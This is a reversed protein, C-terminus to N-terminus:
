FIKEGSAKWRKFLHMASFIYIIGVLVFLYYNSSISMGINTGILGTIGLNFGSVINVFFAVTDMQAKGGFLMKNNQNWRYLLYGSVIGSIIWAITLLSSVLSYFILPTIKLIPPYGGIFLAISAIILRAESWLFSYRELMHPKLHENQNM